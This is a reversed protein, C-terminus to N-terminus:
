AKNGDKKQFYLSAERLYQQEDRIYDAETYHESALVMLVTGPSFDFMERWIMHGIYLGDAPDSLTVVTEGELPNKLRIRVSGHLCILVQELHRHSHFGRTVGKPVDTIYYVRRIEFPVDSNGEIANLNGYPGGFTKFSIPKCNIM